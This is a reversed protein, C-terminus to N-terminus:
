LTTYERKRQISQLSRIAAKRGPRAQLTASFRRHSVASSGADSPSGLRSHRGNHPASSAPPKEVRLKQNFRRSMSWADSVKSGRCPRSRVLHAGGRKYRREDNRGLWNAANRM